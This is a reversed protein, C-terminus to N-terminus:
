SESGAGDAEERVVSAEYARESQSTGDCRREDWEMRDWGTTNYGTWDWGIGGRGIRDRFM